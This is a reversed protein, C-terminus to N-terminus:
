VWRTIKSGRVEFAGRIPREQWHGNKLCRVRGVTLVRDDQEDLHDIEWDVAEADSQVDVIAQWIERQGVIPRGRSSEIHSEPCFFSQVREGDNDSIADMLRMIVQRNKGPKM